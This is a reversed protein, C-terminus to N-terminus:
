TNYQVKNFDHTFPSDSKTHATLWDCAQMFQEWSQESFTDECTIKCTAYRQNSTLDLISENELQLTNGNVQFPIGSGQRVMASSVLVFTTDRDSFVLPLSARSADLSTTSLENLMEKYDRLAKPWQSVPMNSANTVSYQLDMAREPLMLDVSSLTGRWCGSERVRLQNEDEGPLDGDMSMYGDLASSFDHGFELRVFERSPPDARADTLNKPAAQYMLRHVLRQRNPKLEMVHKPISPMFIRRQDLSKMRQLLEPLPSNGFVPPTLIHDSTFPSYLLLHGLSAQLISPTKENKATSTFETSLRKRLDEVQGGIDLTLHASSLVATHKMENYDFWGVDRMRFVSSSFVTWPLPRPPIFPYLSFGFPAGANGTSTQLGDDKRVCVLPTSQSSSEYAGRMTLAKAIHRARPENAHYTVHFTDNDQSEVLAGSLRSVRQCLKLSVDRETPFRIVDNTIDTKFADIYRATKEVSERVGKVSLSLPNAVFSTRVNYKRSLMHLNSGDKGLLLFAEQTNLPYSRTVVETRDRRQELSDSLSPWKWQREIISIALARQTRKKPLTLGFLQHANRLQEVTFSRSLIKILVEFDNEYRSTSPPAHKAPKHREIDEATLENSSAVLKLYEQLKNRELVLTNEHRQPGAKSSLTDASPSSSFAATVIFSSPSRCHRLSRGLTPWLLSSM